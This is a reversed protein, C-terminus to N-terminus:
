DGASAIMSEFLAKSFGTTELFMDMRRDDYSQLMINLDIDMIKDLALYREMKDAADGYDTDVMTKVHGRCFSMAGIVWRPDLGVEVHRQGIVYRRKQYAEDYSGGALSVLWAALHQGLIERRGEKADLLNKLKDYQDLNTYFAEVLAPGHKELMPKMSALLKSHEDTLGGFRRMENIDFNM